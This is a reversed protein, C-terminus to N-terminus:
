IYVDLVSLLDRQSPTQSCDVANGATKASRRTAGDSAVSRWEVGFEVNTFPLNPSGASGGPALAFCAFCNTASAFQTGRNTPQSMRNLRAQCRDVNTGLRQDRGCTSTCMIPWAPIDMFALSHERCLSRGNGAVARTQAAVWTKPCARVTIVGRLASCEVPQLGKCFPVNAASCCIHQATSGFSQSDNISLWQDSPRLASSRGGGHSRAICERASACSSPLM